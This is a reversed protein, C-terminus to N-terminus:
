LTPSGARSGALKDFQKSFLDAYLQGRNLLEAHTGMEAVRGRELVVIRDSHLITSLRHAIILSTRGKLLRDLAEQILHESTADLSSTAEDLVLIRPDKLLARAISLRQKEGGSLRFGREGVVSDYGEPLASIMDHINASKCAEILEASTAGPNAYLLNERISAHFLFTEQTVMAIQQRLWSQPLQRLDIGDLTIRGGTPDYFRPLLYTITTKGAGSPGVLAVQEGPEITFGVGNLAFRLVEGEGGDGEEDEVTPPKPYCFSVGSFEVRGVCTSPRQPKVVDEVEPSMDLYEFIREFVALAGQIDAYVTALQVLPRYLLTLLAAFAVLQGPQLAGSMVQHGGYWFVLAPGVTSFVTLIMVLWRGVVAQRINLRCVTSCCEAFTKRDPEEQGYIRTLLVGAVHARENLFGLLKGRAVQTEMSLRRRIRGVARSPLYFAPVIAIAMLTLRWDMALMATSTAVLTAFNSAISVVTGSAVGQVANVDNNIRSVIEGSRNATYFRLSLRQVKAFLQTRLDLLLRQGANATLSQQLVGILGSLIAIGVMAGVLMGLLPSNAEPLARDIIRGVLIPPVVSLTSVAGICIFVALWHLRYPWFYRAIRSLRARELPIKPGDEGRREFHRSLGYTRSIGGATAM